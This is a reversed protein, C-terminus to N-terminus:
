SRAAEIALREKELEAWVADRLTASVDFGVIAAIAATNPAGDKKWNVEVTKDLGVIADRVAIFKDADTVVAAPSGAGSTAREGAAELGEPETDTVELMQEQELRDATSKDVEVPLWARTFQMGCRYFSQAQQKPQIRVWRQLNAM